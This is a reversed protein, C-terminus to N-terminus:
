STSSRSSAPWRARQDDDRDAAAAAGARDRRAAGGAAHAARARARRQVPADRRGRARAARADRQVRRAVDDLEDGAGRVPLRQQSTARRRHRAAAAPWDRSRRWRVAAAMWRGLVVGALLGAPVSWLLLTVFRACRRTSRRRAVRRGAASLTAAPRRAVCATRCACGATIPRRRRRSRPRERFAQVEAPTYHLGSRRSRPRSRGAARGTAADYIQYYRRRRRSSRRGARSRRQDYVRAVPTGDDFQLYGHLGSTLEELDRPPTRM